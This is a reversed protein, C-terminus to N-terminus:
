KLILTLLSLLITAVALFWTAMVLRRNTQENRYAIYQTLVYEEFGSPLIVPDEKKKQKKSNLYWCILEDKFEKDYNNLWEKFSQKM